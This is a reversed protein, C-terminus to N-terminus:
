LICNHLETGIRKESSLHLLVQLSPLTYSGLIRGLVASDMECESVRYSIWKLIIRGAVGIDVL